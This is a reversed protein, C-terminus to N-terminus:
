LVPRCRCSAKGYLFSLYILKYIKKGVPPQTSFTRCFLSIINHAIARCYIEARMTHASLSSVSAGFKRKTASFVSEAMERRHYIRMNFNEACKRRLTFGSIRTGYRRAPIIALAGKDKCLQHLWEADYGKDAVVKKPASPLHNILYGADKIDNAYKARFRLSLIKKSRTDVAFSVKLPVEVPYPKDIRKYFYPSPLPRSMGTGDLAVINLMQCNTMKLLNQWISAKIRKLMKALASYTPTEFGLWNLLNSVRRYGLRCEQKILLALAHQWFEYKKPGFRHLWRPLGARRVLGKVKKVLKTEQTMTPRV